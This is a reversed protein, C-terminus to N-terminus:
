HEPGVPLFTFFLLLHRRRPRAMTRGSAFLDALEVDSPVLSHMVAYKAVMILGSAQSSM